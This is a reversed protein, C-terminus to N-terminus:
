QVTMRAIVLRLTGDLCCINEDGFRHEALCKLLREAQKVSVVAANGLLQVLLLDRLNEMTKRKRFTNRHKAKHSKRSIV